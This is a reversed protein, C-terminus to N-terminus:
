KQAPNALTQDAASLQEYWAQAALPDIQHWKSFFPSLAQSRWPAESAETIRKAAQAPNTRMETMIIFTLMEGRPAAELTWQAM